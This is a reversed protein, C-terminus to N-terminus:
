VVKDGITQKEIEEKTILVSNHTFTVSPDSICWRVTPIQKYTQFELFKENWFQTLVQNPTELITKFENLLSQSIFTNKSLLTMKLM